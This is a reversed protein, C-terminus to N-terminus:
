SGAPAQWYAAMCWGYDAIRCGPLHHQYTARFEGPTLDGGQCKHKVWEPNLDFALVRLTDAVGLRRLYAPTQRLTHAVQWFPSAKRTKNHTILDRVFLRGGPRVLSILNPLSDELRTDHLVCDSGVFDFSGPELTLKELDAILIEINTRGERKAYAQALDAMAPSLDAAVVLRTRKALFRALYGPGCGGDFAHELQEPLWGAGLLYAYDPPNVRQIWADYALAFRNFEAM